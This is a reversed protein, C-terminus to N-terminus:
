RAQSSDVRWSRAAERGIGGAGADQARLIASGPPSSPQEADFAPHIHPVCDELQNRATQTKYSDYHATAILAPDRGLAAM